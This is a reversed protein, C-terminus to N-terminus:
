FHRLTELQTPSVPFQHCSPKRPCLFNYERSFRCLQPAIKSQFEKARMLLRAKFRASNWRFLTQPPLCTEPQQLLHHPRQQNSAATNQPSIICCGESNQKRIFWSGSRRLQFTMFACRWCAETVAPKRLKMLLHSSGARGRPGVAIPGKLLLELGCLWRIVASYSWRHDLFEAYSSCRTSKKKRRGHTTCVNLARLTITRDALSVSLCSCFCRPKLRAM